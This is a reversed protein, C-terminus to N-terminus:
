SDGRCRTASRRRRPRPPVDNAITGAVTAAQRTTNADTTARAVNVFMTGVLALLVASLMMSVILEVMSIGIDEARLRRIVRNV